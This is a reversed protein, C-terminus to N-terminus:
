AANSRTMAAGSAVAIAVFLFVLAWGVNSAWIAQQQSWTILAAFLMSGLLAKQLALERGERRTAAWLVGGLAVLLVGTVRVFALAAMVTMSLEYGMTESAPLPYGTLFPFVSPGYLALVIGALITGIALLKTVERM